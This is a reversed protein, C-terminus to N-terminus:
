STSRGTSEGSEPLYSTGAHTPNSYAPSTTEGTGEERNAKVVRSLGFGLAVSGLLFLGAHDRALRSAERILEDTNKNRLNDSLKGIGEAIESVYHSLTTANRQALQEASAHGAEAMTDLTDTARSAQTKLQEESKTKVDRATQEAQAKMDEVVEQKGPNTPHQTNM